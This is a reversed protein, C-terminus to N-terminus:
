NRVRKKDLTFKGNVTSISCILLSSIGDVGAVGPVGPTGRKPPNLDSLLPFPLLLYLFDRSLFQLHKPTWSHFKSSPARGVTVQENIGGGGGTGRAFFTYIVKIIIYMYYLETYKHTDLRQDLTILTSWIM